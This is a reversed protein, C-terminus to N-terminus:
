KESKFKKIDNNLSKFQEDLEALKKDNVKDNPIKFNNEKILQEAQEIMKDGNDSLKTIDQNQLQVETTRIEQKDNDLEIDKGVCGSFIIQAVILMFILIQKYM